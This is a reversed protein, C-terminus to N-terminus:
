NEALVSKLVLTIAFPLVMSMAILIFGLMALQGVPSFGEAAAALASLAFILVPLYLPFSILILLIAGRSISLTMASGLLALLLLSPAGLALTIALLLIIEWTLDYLIGLVPLTIIIPVILTAMTVIIKAGLYGFFSHGSLWFQALSGDEFDSKFAKEAHIFVALTTAIWLIGPGIQRLLLADVGVAFPVIALLLAVFFLPQLLAQWHRVALLWERKLWVKM